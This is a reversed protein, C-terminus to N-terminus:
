VTSLSEGFSLCIDEKLKKFHKIQPIGISLERFFVKETSKWRDSRCENM